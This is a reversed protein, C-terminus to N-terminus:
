LAAYRAIGHHEPKLQFHVMGIALAEAVVDRPQDKLAREWAEHAQQIDLSGNVQAELIKILQNIQGRRIDTSTSM